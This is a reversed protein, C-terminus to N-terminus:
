ISRNRQWPLLEVVTSRRGSRGKRHLGERFGRFWFAIAGIVEFVSLGQKQPLPMEFTSHFACVALRTRHRDSVTRTVVDLNTVPRVVARADESSRNVRNWQGIVRCLCGLREAELVLACMSSPQLLNCDVRSSRQKRGLMQRYAIPALDYKAPM